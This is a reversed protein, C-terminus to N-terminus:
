KVALQFQEQRNVVDVKVRQGNHLTQLNVWFSPHAHDAFAFNLVPQSGVKQVEAEGRSLDSCRFDEPHKDVDSNVYVTVM